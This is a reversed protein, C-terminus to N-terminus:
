ALLGRASLEWVAEVIGGRVAYLREHLFVTSDSYGVVFQVREGIRPHAAPAELEVTAHEASLSLSRHPPLHAPLPLTPYRALAKWGADCVLRTPTPRSTVTTWVTLAYDHQVGFVTRYHVDGFIGGGAQIETVGPLKASIWYTGTGGCSVVPVPIGAAWCQTASATLRGVAEAVAKQKAAADAIPPTHGEWAMLGELAVGELRSVQRALALTAEGPAVGARAMGSDVELLVPVTTGAARGAAAVAQANELSDPACAVKARRNLLALRALKREGVVQNAILIDDIGAAAMAEAESLKACTIGVAGAKLLRHALAPTKMAKVHPRWAVGAETVIVRRMREINAELRDLDVALFPTDIADLTLLPFGGYRALRGNGIGRRAPM